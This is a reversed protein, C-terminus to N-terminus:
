HNLLPITTLLRHIAGPAIMEFRVRSILPDYGLMLAVSTSDSRLIAHRFGSDEGAHYEYDKALPDEITEWRRINNGSDLYTVVIRGERLEQSANERARGDRLRSSRLAYTEDGTALRKVDFILLQIRPVGLTTTDASSAKGAGCGTSTGLLGCAIAVLGLLSLFHARARRGIGGPLESAEIPIPIQKTNQM